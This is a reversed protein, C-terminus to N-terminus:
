HGGQGEAAAEVRLELRSGRRGHCDGKSSVLEEEAPEAPVERERGGM